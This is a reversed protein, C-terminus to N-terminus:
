SLYIAELIKATLHLKEKDGKKTLDHLVKMLDKSSMERTYHFLEFIEINLAHALKLFTDLTPNERGREISSLYKSSMGIKESLEEQSMGRTRRLQKIRSGILQKTEM